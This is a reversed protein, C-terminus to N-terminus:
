AVTLSLAHTYHLIVVFIQLFRSISYWLGNSFARVYKDRFNNPTQLHQQMQWREKKTTNFTSRTSSRGFTGGSVSTIVAMISRSPSKESIKHIISPNIRHDTLTAINVNSSYSLANRFFHYAVTQSGISVSSINKLPISVDEECHHLVCVLLIAWGGGGLYGNKKVWLKVIRLAGGFFDHIDLSTLHQLSNISSQIILNDEFVNMVSSGTSDIPRRSADLRSLLLDLPPM